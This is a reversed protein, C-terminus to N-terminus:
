PCDFAEGLRDVVPVQRWGLNPAEVIRGAEPDIPGPCGVGIGAIRKKSVGADNLAEEIVSIMRKLGSKAGKAGQTKQKARGLTEYNWDFVKALMKTGGLDFGVWVQDRDSKSDSSPDNM